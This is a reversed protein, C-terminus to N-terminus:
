APRVRLLSLGFAVFIGGTLRNFARQLAPRELRRALIHGAGGYVAYWFMELAAFTLVLVVFQPTRPASENIFQPLFAATFLLFKPNSVGVLFGTRLLKAPSADAVPTAGVPKPTADAFWARVGVYVLYGAGAYRLADFVGPAATLLATLGAASAVLVTVVASLCGAMAPLSRRVGLTVSRTMVHLMNPGPSGCLLFVAMAFLWWTQLTM